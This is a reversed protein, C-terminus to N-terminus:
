HDRPDNAGVRNWPVLTEYPFFLKIQVGLFETKPKRYGIGIRQTSGSAAKDSIIVSRLM